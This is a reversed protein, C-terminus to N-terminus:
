PRKDTLGWCITTTRTPHDNSTDCQPLPADAQEASFDSVLNGTVELGKEVDPNAETADLIDKVAETGRLYNKGDVDSVMYAPHENAFPNVTDIVLTGGSGSWPLVGSYAPEQPDNNEAAARTVKVSIDPFEPASVSLGLISKYPVKEGSPAFDQGDKQVYTTQFHGRVVASIMPYGGGFAGFLNFLEQVLEQRLKLWHAAEAATHVGEVTGALYHYDKLADAALETGKGLIGVLKTEGLTMLGLQIGFKVPEPLHAYTQGFAGFLSEVGDDFEIMKQVARQTVASEIDLNIGSPQFPIPWAVIMTFQNSPQGAEDTGGVPLVEVPVRSVEKCTGTQVQKHIYMRWKFVRVVRATVVTPGSVLQVQQTSRNWAFSATATGLSGGKLYSYWQVKAGPTKFVVWGRGRLFVRETGPGDRKVAAASFCAPFETALAVLSRFTANHQLPFGAPSTNYGLGGDTQYRAALSPDVIGKQPIEASIEVTYISKCASPTVNGSPSTSSGTRGDAATRAGGASRLDSVETSSAVACTAFNVGSVPTSGVTISQPPPDFGTGDITTGDVSPGVTYTGAPVYATWTGNATSIASSGAPAGATSTGNLVVTVGPLPAPVCSSDGCQEDTITGSVETQGTRMVFYALPNGNFTGSGLVNGQASIAWANKLVWGSNAPLIANLNVPQATYSPWITARGEVEGVIEGSANIGEAQGTDGAPLALPYESGDPLMVEPLGTTTNTGVVSGDPALEGEQTVYPQSPLTPIPTSGGSRNVRTMDSTSNGEVVEWNPQIAYLTGSGSIPEMAGGPGPAIGNSRCVDLQSFEIGGAEGADDVATFSGIEPSCGPSDVVPSLSAQGTVTDWYYPGTVIGSASDASGVVLGADNMSVPFVTDAGSPIQSPIFTGDRWVGGLQGGPGLSSEFATGSYLVEGRDDVTIPTGYTSNLPGVETIPATAPLTPSTVVHPATARGLAPTGLLVLAAITVMGVQRPARRVLLSAARVGIVFGM